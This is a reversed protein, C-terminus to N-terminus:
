RQNQSKRTGKLIIHRNETGIKHSIFVSSIIQAMNQIEFLNELGFNSEESDSNEERPQIEAININLEELQDDEFIGLNIEDGDTDETEKIDEDTNETEKINEMEDKDLDEDPSLLESTEKESSSTSEPSNNSDCRAREGGALPRKRHRCRRGVEM